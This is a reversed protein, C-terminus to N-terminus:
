VSCKSPRLCALITEMARRQMHKDKQRSSYVGFDEELRLEPVLDKSFGIKVLGAQCVGSYEWQVKHAVECMPLYKSQNM